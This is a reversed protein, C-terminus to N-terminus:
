QFIIYNFSVRFNSNFARLKDMMTEQVKIKYNEWKSYKKSGIQQKAINYLENFLNKDVYSIM